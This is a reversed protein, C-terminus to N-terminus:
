LIEMESVVVTRPSETGPQAWKCILDTRNHPTGCNRGSRHEGIKESSDPRTVTLM